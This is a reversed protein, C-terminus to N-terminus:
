TAWALWSDVTYVLVILLHHSLLLLVLADELGAKCVDSFSIDSSTLKPTPKQQQNESEERIDGTGDPIM